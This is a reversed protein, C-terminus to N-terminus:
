RRAVGHPAAGVARPHQLLPGTMSSRRRPSDQLAADEESEQRPTRPEPPRSKAAAAASPQRDDRVRLSNRRAAPARLLAVCKWRAGRQNNVGEVAARDDCGEAQRAEARAEHAHEAVGRRVQHEEATDAEGSGAAAGRPAVLLPRVARLKREDTSVTRPAKRGVVARRSPLRWRSYLWFRVGRRRARAGAPACRPAVFAAM